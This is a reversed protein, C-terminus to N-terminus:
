RAPGVAPSDPDTSRELTGGVEASTQPLTAEASVDALWLALRQYGRRQGPRAPRDEAPQPHIGPDDDYRRDHGDADVEARGRGPAISQGGHSARDDKAQVCCRQNPDPEGDPSPPGGDSRLDHGEDDHRGVEDVQQRGSQAQRVPEVLDGQSRVQALRHDSLPIGHPDHSTNHKGDAAQRDTAPPQAAAVDRASRRPM